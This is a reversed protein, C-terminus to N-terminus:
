KGAIALKKIYISPVDYGSPLLDRDSAVEKVNMFLEVLNGAITILTLPTSQKGDEIMFGNAQLSFNGSQPNLSAHVGM